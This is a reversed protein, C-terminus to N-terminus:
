CSQEKGEVRDTEEAVHGGGLEQVEGEKMACGKTKRM